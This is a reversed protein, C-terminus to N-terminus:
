NRNSARSKENLPLNELQRNTLTWLKEIKSDSLNPPGFIFVASNVDSRLVYNLKNETLVLPEITMRSLNLQNAIIGTIFVDDIWFYKSKQAKEYLQVVVDATYIIGFGACYTPYHSDDYEMPSVRWKSRYSRKVVSRIYVSCLILKRAGHPFVDKSLFKILFPTNVFIDDDAKLIFKASVCFYTTWKLAMVHKYTLNRYADFFNGQIIDKHVSNEDAIRSQTEPSDVGGFLFLLKVLDNYKGWTKRIIDRKNFHLPNSHVLILLFPSPSSDNCPFNNITFKFDVLDILTNFDASSLSNANYFSFNTSENIANVTYFSPKEYDNEYVVISCFMFSCLVFILIFRFYKYYIIKLM